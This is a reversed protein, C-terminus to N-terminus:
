DMPLGDSFDTPSIPRALFSRVLEPFDESFYQLSFASFYPNQKGETRCLGSPTWESFCHSHLSRETGMNDMRVDDTWMDDTGMSGGCAEAQLPAIPETAIHCCVGEAAVGCLVM